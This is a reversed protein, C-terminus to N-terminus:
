SPYEEDVDRLEAAVVVEAPAALLEDQREGGALRRDRHHIAARARPRVLEQDGRRAAGVRRSAYTLAARAFFLRLVGFDM